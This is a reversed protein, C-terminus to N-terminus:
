SPRPSPVLSTAPGPGGPLLHMTTVFGELLRTAGGFPVVGPETENEWAAIVYMRDGVPIFVQTDGDFRV